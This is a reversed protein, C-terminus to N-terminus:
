PVARQEFRGISKRLAYFEIDVAYLDELQTKIEPDSVDALSYLGNPSENFKREFSLSTHPVDASTLLATFDDKFTDMIGIFDLVINGSQQKIVRHQAQWHYDKRIPTNGALNKALFDIFRQFNFIHNDLSTPGSHPFQLGYHEILYSRIDAFSYQSVISIKENYCSYIRSVPERLFTFNRSRRTLKSLLQVPQSDIRFLAKKDFHIDLPNKHFNGHDLYYLYNKITTCGSKPLNMYVLGHNKSALLGWYGPVNPVVRTESIETLV